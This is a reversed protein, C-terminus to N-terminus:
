QPDDTLYGVFQRLIRETMGWILHEAYRFCTVQRPEGRVHIMDEGSSLPDLLCSVPVWFAAAVEPSPVIHVPETLVAVYPRVIIPPLTPTRPHIEDLTGLLRGSRSLDIATEELTERVADDGPVDAAVMEYLRIAEALDGQRRSVQALLVHAIASRPELALAQEAYAKAEADRRQQFAATAAGLRLSANKPDLTIAERFLDAAAAPKGDKIAAWGDQELMAVRPSNQKGALVPSAALLVSGALIWTGASRFM